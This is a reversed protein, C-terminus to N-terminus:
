IYKHVISRIDYASYNQQEHKDQIIQVSPVPRVICVAAGTQPVTCTIGIGSNRLSLAAALM